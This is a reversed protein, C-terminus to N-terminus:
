QSISSNQIMFITASVFTLIWIVKCCFPWHWQIDFFLIQLEWEWLTHNWLGSTPGLDRFEVCVCMHANLHSQCHHDVCWKLLFDNSHFIQFISYELLNSYPVTLLQKIQPVTIIQSMGLFIFQFGSGKTVSRSMSHTWWTPCYDLIIPIRKSLPVQFV